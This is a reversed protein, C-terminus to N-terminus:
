PLRLLIALFTSRFKATVFVHKLLATLITFFNGAIIVVWVVWKIQQYTTNGAHQNIFNNLNLLYDRYFNPLNFPKCSTTIAQTTDHYSINTYFSTFDFTTLCLDHM